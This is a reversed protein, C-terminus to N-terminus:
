QRYTLDLFQKLIRATAGWIIHGQLRFHTVGSDEVHCKEAIARLPLFILESIEDTNIEFKYPYPIIGVYPTIVFGTTVTFIDDLRGLIRVDRQDLGIEEAGERLATHLLDSDDPDTTGGPFSIEGRHYAVKESRRTFLVNCEGDKEFLLLLVASPALKEDRIRKYERSALIDAIREEICM